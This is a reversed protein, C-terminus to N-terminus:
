KQGYADRLLYNTWGKHSKRKGSILSCLHAVSLNHKRAFESLCEISTYLEGHPSLLGINSYTKANPNKKGLRARTMKDRTEKSLKKGVNKESLKQKTEDSVKHGQLAKSIKKKHEQTLKSGKRKQVMREVIEKQEQETKDNWRKKYRVSMQMKTDPSSYYEKMKKKYDPDKWKKKMLISRRKNTDEPNISYPGDKRTAWKSVNYCADWRDLLVFEKILEEERSTRALKDGEVVELVEFVFADSGWKNWANLLYKNAHKGSNLRSEHQAARKQFCKASGIYVKGNQINRIQYIGSKGSQGKYHKKM